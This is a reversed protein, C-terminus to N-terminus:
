SPPLGVGEASVNGPDKTRTRGRSVVVDDAGKIGITTFLPGARTKGKVVPEGRAGSIIENVLRAADPGHLDAIDALLENDTM